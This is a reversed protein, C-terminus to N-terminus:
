CCEVALNRFLVSKVRQMRISKPVDLLIACQILFYIDEGYDGKVSALIFNEHIEMEHLLITEEEEHTRPSAYM